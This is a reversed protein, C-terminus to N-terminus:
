TFAAEFSTSVAGEVLVKRYILLSLQQNNPVWESAPFIIKEIEM